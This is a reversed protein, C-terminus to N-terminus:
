SAAEEECRLCVQYKEYKISKELTESIIYPKEGSDLFLFNCKGALM